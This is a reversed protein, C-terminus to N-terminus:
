STTTRLDNTTPSTTAAILRNPVATAEAVGLGFPGPCGPAGFVVQPPGAPFAFEVGPAAAEADPEGNLAFPVAPVTYAPLGPVAEAACAALEVATDWYSM